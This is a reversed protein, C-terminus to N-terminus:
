GPGGSSPRPMLYESSGSTLSWGEFMVHALIVYAVTELKGCLLSLGKTPPASTAPDPRTSPTAALTPPQFGKSSVTLKPATVSSKMNPLIM